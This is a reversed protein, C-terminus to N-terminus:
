GRVYLGKLAVRKLSLQKSEVGLSEFWTLLLAKISTAKSQLFYDLLKAPLERHERLCTQNFDVSASSYSEKCESHMRVRCDSYSITASPLSSPPVLWLITKGALRIPECADAPMATSSSDQRAPSVQQRCLSLLKWADFDTPKLLPMGGSTRQKKYVTKSDFHYQAIQM